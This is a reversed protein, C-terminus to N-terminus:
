AISIWVVRCGAYDPHRTTQRNLRHFRRRQQMLRQVGLLLAITLGLPEIEFDERALRPIKVGIVQQSDQAKLLTPRSLRQAM